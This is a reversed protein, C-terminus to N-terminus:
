LFLTYYYTNEARRLADTIFYDFIAYATPLRVAALRMKFLECTMTLLLSVAIM